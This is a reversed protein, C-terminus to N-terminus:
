APCARSTTTSSATPVATSSAVRSSKAARRSSDARPRRSRNPAASASSRTTASARRASAACGRLDCRLRARRRRRGAPGALARPRPGGEPRAPQRLHAHRPHGEDQPSIRRELDAVDVNFTKPDIDVYVPRLRNWLVANVTSNFTFSQVLCEGGEPLELAALSLVLGIDCNVLSRAWPNGLYAQAKEEFRVAYKGFNSLMRSEWIDELLEVFRDLPPLTPRSVPLM